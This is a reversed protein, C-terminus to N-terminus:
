GGILLKDMRVPKWSDMESYGFRVDIIAETQSEWLGLISVDGWTEPVSGGHIVEEESRRRVLHTTTKEHVCNLYFYKKTLHIIKDCIENHRAIVLGGNPFILTHCLLLTQMCGNCKNQINPPYLKKILVNFNCFKTAALVTGTVTTGWVSM